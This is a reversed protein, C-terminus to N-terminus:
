DVRFYFDLIFNGFKLIVKNEAQKALDHISQKYWKYVLDNLPSCNHEIHEISCQKCLLEDCSPCILEYDGKHKNCIALKVTEMGEKNAVFDQDNSLLNNEKESFMIVKFFDFSLKFFLVM